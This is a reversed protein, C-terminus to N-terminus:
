PGGVPSKQTDEILEQTTNRMNKIFVKFSNKFIYEKIKRM